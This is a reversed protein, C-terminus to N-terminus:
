KSKRKTSSQERRQQKEFQREQHRRQQRTMKPPVDTQGLSPYPDAGTVYVRVQDILLNWDLKAETSCSALLTLLLLILGSSALPRKRIEKALAPSAAAIRDVVQEVPSGAQAERLASQLVALIELTRAPTGPHVAISNGVFDFTGDIGHAGQGCRPCQVIISEFTIQRANSVQILSSVFIAGCQFCHAPLGTM